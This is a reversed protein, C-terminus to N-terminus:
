GFDIVVITITTEISVDLDKMSRFLSLPRDAFSKVKPLSRERGKKEQELPGSLREWKLGVIRSNKRCNRM